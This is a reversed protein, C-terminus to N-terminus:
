VDKNFSRASAAGKSELRASGPHTNSARTQCLRSPQESAARASATGPAPATSSSQQRLRKLTRKLYKQDLWARHTDGGERQRKAKSKRAIDLAKDERMSAQEAWKRMSEQLSAKRDDSRDPCVKSESDHGQSSASGPGDFPGSAWGEAVQGDTQWHRNGKQERQREEQGEDAHWAGVESKSDHQWSNAAGPEDRWGSSSDTTWRWGHHNDEQERQRGERGEDTHWVGFGSKWDRDWSSASGPGDAPSSACAATWASSWRCGEAVQWDTQL